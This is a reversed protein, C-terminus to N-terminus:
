TQVENSLENPNDKSPPFKDSLVAGMELIIESLNASLRGSKIGLIIKEVQNKWADEPFFPTVGRDALIQVRRELESIYILIGTGTKTKEIGLSHFKLLCAQHVRYAKKHSSLLLRHLSPIKALLVFALAGLTECVLIETLGASWHHEWSWILNIGVGIISGLFGALLYSEPYPDSQRVVAVVIEASTKKEAESIAKSIHNKDHQTLLAMSKGKGHRPRVEAVLDGAGEALVEETAELVEV